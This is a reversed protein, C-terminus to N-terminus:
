RFIQPISPPLAVRKIYPQARHLESIRGNVVGNNEGQCGESVGWISASEGMVFRVWKLTISSQLNVTHSLRYGWPTWGSFNADSSTDFQVSLVHSITNDTCNQPWPDFHSQKTIERLRLVVPSLARLFTDAPLTPDPSYVQFSFIGPPVWGQKPIEGFKHWFRSPVLVVAEQKMPFTKGESSPANLSGFNLSRFTPKGSTLM